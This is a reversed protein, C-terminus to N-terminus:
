EYTVINLLVQSHPEQVNYHIWNLLDRAVCGPRIGRVTYLVDNDNYLTGQWQGFAARVIEVKMMGYGDFIAM